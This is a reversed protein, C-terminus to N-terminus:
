KGDFDGPICSFTQDSSFEHFIKEDNSAGTGSGGGGM